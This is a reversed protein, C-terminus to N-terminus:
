SILNFERQYFDQQFANEVYKLGMKRDSVIESLQFGRLVSSFGKKNLTLLEKRERPISM